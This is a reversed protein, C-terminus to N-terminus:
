RKVYDAYSKEALAFVADWDQRTPNPKTLIDALSRALAPGYKVLAIAIIEAITM